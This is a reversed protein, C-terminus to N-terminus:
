EYDMVQGARVVGLQQHAILGGSGLEALADDDHDGTLTLVRLPGNTLELAAHVAEYQGVRCKRVVLRAGEAPTGWHNQEGTRGHRATVGDRGLVDRACPREGIVENGM